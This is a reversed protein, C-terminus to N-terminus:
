TITFKVWTIFPADQKDALNTTAITEFTRLLKSDICASDLMLSIDLLTQQSNFM